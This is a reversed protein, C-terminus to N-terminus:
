RVDHLAAVAPEKRLRAAVAQRQAADLAFASREYGFFDSATHTAMMLGRPTHVKSALLFHGIEHALARGMARGLLLDREAIPMRDVLGVVARASAMYADANDYSLYIESDPLGDDFVIWGLAMTNEYRREADAARGSGITVRLGPALCPGADVRARAAASERRWVLSFGAARWVADTEELVRKVLAPPVASSASVTITVPPLSSAAPAAAGAFASAFVAAVLSTIIPM